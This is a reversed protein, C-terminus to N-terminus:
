ISFSNFLDFLYDINAPFPDMRFNNEFSYGLIPMILDDASVLIFGSPDLNIIYFINEQNHNLLYIDRYNYENYERNNKSYFFNQSIDLARQESVIESLIINFVLTFFLIIKMSKM